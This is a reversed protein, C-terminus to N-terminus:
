PRQESREPPRIVRMTGTARPPEFAMKPDINGPPAIVEPGRGQGPDALSEIMAQTRRYLDRVDFGDARASALPIATIAVALLGAARM